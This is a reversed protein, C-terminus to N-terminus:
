YLYKNIRKRIINKYQDSGYKTLHHTDYIYPIGSTNVKQIHVNLLDIYDNKLNTNLFDNVKENKEKWEINSPQIINYKQQLYYTTPYDFYFTDTQGLYLTKINYKAFYDVSFKLKEALEETTYGSYNSNIIVLKVKNRIKPFYDLYFYNFYKKPGEFPTDSNVMPYTGDTTIQILQYNDRNIIEKIMGSMMGAHSDGLLIVVSDKKVKLNSLDYEDFSKEGNKHEKDFNYQLTAQESFKYDSTFFILNKVSSDIPIKQYFKTIFFSISFLILSLILVPRIKKDNTKKEIVYYSIIALIFSLCIFFIKYRLRDNVNFYVSLVWFPWHWLYLSYSINGIFKVIKNELFKFDINLLLIVTTSIIPIVTLLSPWLVKYEKILYICSFIVLLCLFFIVKKVNLSIRKFKDEFIFALGGFMMEWARPYFIYFSFSKDSHTHFLMSIFSFAM